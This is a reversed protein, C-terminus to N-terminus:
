RLTRRAPLALMPPRPAPLRPAQPPLLFPLPPAYGPALPPAYTPAGLGPFSNPPSTAASDVAVSPLAPAAPASPPAAFESGRLVHPAGCKWWQVEGCRSCTHSAEDGLNFAGFHRWRRGCRDCTHGHLDLMYAGVVGVGVAIAIAGLTSVISAGTPPPEAPGQFTRWAAGPVPSKRPADAM